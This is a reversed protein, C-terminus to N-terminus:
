RAVLEAFDTSLTLQKWKELEEKFATTNTSARNFADSGLLLHLPPSDSDVAHIIAKAAKEPDGIQKGKMSELHKKVQGASGEYDDIASDTHKISSDNLFDTRVAGPEVITVRIGLDRVEHAVSISLGEVAFKAAAYFAYGGVPALGAISSLNVIHGGHQLRLFPLAAQMVHVTGFFNVDMVDNFERPTTGEMAGILGYGANNVVVDLRWYLEHARTVATFVQERKTVDLPLMHLKGNSQKIDAEGTRSTGIVTDGRLLAAEALAKGLGRSVGTILWIKNKTEM